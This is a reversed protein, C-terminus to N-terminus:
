VADRLLLGARYFFYLGATQIVHFLDHHNFHPSPAFGSRQVLVGVCSLALAGFVWRAEPGRRRLQAHVAFALLAAATVGFDYVVYRFAQHQTLYAVYVIFRVSAAVLLIRRLTGKTAAFAAGSLLSANALGIADYTVLWLATRAGPGLHPAFGHSTGGCIAAFATLLLAAAWLVISAQDARRGFALLRGGFFGGCAALVYDTLTTTPEALSM